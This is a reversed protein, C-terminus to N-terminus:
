RHGQIRGAALLRGAVALLDSQDAAALRPIRDAAAAQHEAAVLRLIRDAAAAQPDAAM